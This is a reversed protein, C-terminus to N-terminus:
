REQVYLTYTAGSEAATLAFASDRSGAADVPFDADGLRSRYVGAGGNGGSTWTWRPLNNTPSTGSIRPAAPPVTDVPDPVPNDAVTVAITLTVSPQQRLSATLTGTGARLTKLRGSGLSLFDPPSVRWDL